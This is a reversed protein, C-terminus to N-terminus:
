YSALYDQWGAGGVNIRNHHSSTMEGAALIILIVMAVIDMPLVFGIPIKSKRNSTKLKILQLIRIKFDFILIIYLVCLTTKPSIVLAIQFKFLPSHAPFAM